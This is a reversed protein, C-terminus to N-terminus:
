VKTTTVYQFFLLWVCKLPESVPRKANEMQAIDFFIVKLQKYQIAKLISIFNYCHTFIYYIINM